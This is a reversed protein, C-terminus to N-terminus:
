GSRPNRSPRATIDLSLTCPFRFARPYVLMGGQQKPDSARVFLSGRNADNTNEPVTRSSLWDTIPVLQDEPRKPDELIGRGLVIRCEGEKSISIRLQVPVTESRAPRGTVTGSSVHSNKGLRGREMIAKVQEANLALDYIMLEDMRGVFGHKDGPASTGLILPEGITKLSRSTEAVERGDFFYRITQGDYSITHHHWATDVTLETGLGGGWDFFRWKGGAEMIGFARTPEHPGYTVIHVNHSVPGRNGKLWVALTRPKTKEPFSGSVRMFASGDFEVGKGVRGEVYYAGANDWIRNKDDECDDDFTLALIPKPLNSSEDDLSPPSLTRPTRSALLTPAASTVNEIPTTAPPEPQTKRVTNGEDPQNVLTTPKTEQPNRKQNILVYGGGLLGLCFLGILIPSVQRGKRTARIRPIPRGIAEPKYGSAVGLIEPAEDDSVVPRSRYSKDVPKGDAFVARGDTVKNGSQKWFREDDSAMKPSSEGTPLRAQLNPVPRTPDILLMEQVDEGAGEVDGIVNRCEARISFAAANRPDLTLAHTADAIAQDLQNRRKLIEARIVYPGPQNPDLRIAVALDALARDPHNLRRHAEARVLYAATQKSDRRIVETAQGVAEHLEGKGLHLRASQLLREVEAAFLGM